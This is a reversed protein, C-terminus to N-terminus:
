RPRSRDPRTTAPSSPPPPEPVGLGRTRVLSLGALVPLCCAALGLWVVSANGSFTLAVGISPGALTGIGMMSNVLANARPLASEPVMSILWPHFSCSYACEGLGFLAAYGILAILRLWYPGHALLGVQVYGIVWLGIAVRLGHVEPRHQLAQAIRRQALAIVVVNVFLLLSVVFLGMSMLNHTVLPATAEFQSLGLLYVGLQLLAVPLTIRLLALQGLAREGAGPEDERGKPERALDRFRRQGALLTLMVPAIGVANVVFFVGIVSTGFALTILGAILSGLALTVNLVAYRRAFMLRREQPTVLSNMIPIIAALFCGQGAGIAIAAFMATPRADALPVVLYGCLWLANGLVALAFTPLRLVGTTLLLAVALNAIGSAAYFLAVGGTGVGPKESLYIATYPLAMGLFFSSLGHTAILTDVPRLRPFLPRRAPQAAESRPM